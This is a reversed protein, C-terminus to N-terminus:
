TEGGPRAMTGKSAGRLATTAVMGGQGRGGGGATGETAGRTRGTTTAAVVGAAVVGAAAAAAAAAALTPRTPSHNHQTTSHIDTWGGADMGGREVVWGGVCVWGCMCGCM